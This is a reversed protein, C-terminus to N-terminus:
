PANGGPAAPLGPAQLPGPRRAAAAFGRLTQELREALELHHQSVNNVEWRDDPKVYLQPGRPEGEPQRLPLLFAWEPTRLVWELAGRHEWGACAYARVGEATGRVLPLLSHGHAPEAPVGFLDLVTPLLDVAQTLAGVRRGAERGDPFRVLLPLHIVEDHLWPRYPGVLGHEGLAQGHDTTLLVVMDASVESAQLEELLAGLGADLYTVAAAYTRQLRLFTTADERRLPGVAPDPLPELPAPPETAAAEEEEDTVTEERFYLDVYEGPVDWPPLLTALEVWVLCPKGATDRTLAERAAELTRELPTGDEAEAPVRIVEDWGTPVDGQVPRSDDSVLVTHVGHARLAQLLDPEDATAPQEDPPPLSYRGTRWAHRAGGADPRDAYHQDFVVGDAALTDLTLTDIWDNGYCGLYGAHLGRAVLVLVKM